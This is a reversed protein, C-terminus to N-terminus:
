TRHALMAKLRNVIEPTNIQLMSVGSAGSAVGLQPVAIGGVQNVIM